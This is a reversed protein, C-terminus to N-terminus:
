RLAAEINGGDVTLVAGTTKNALALSVFANAVDEARV